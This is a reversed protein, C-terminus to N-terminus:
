LWKIMYAVDIVAWYKDRFEEDASLLSTCEQRFDRVQERTIKLLMGIEIPQLKSFCMLVHVAVINKKDEFADDFVREICKLIEEINTM